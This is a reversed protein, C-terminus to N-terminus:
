NCQSDRSFIDNILENLEKEKPPKNLFAKVNYKMVKERTTDQIDASAVIINKEINQEKLSDLFYFGDFEPMLLDLIILDIEQSKVIAMAENGNPAEFIKYDDDKLIKKLWRRMIFSDDTILINKM